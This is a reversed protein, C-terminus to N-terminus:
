NGPALVRLNGSLNLDQIVHTYRDVAPSGSTVTVHNWGHQQAYQVFPDLGSGYSWFSAQNELQIMLGTSGGTDAIRLGYRHLATAIIKSESSAPMAAIQAETPAYWLLAGNPIAVRGDTCVRATQTAPWDWTTATCAIVGFLEHQIAGLQLESLLIFGNPSVAGGATTGGRMWGPTVDASSYASGDVASFAVTGASITQGNAWPPGGSVGWLDLLEGTPQYVAMHHDSGGEPMALAPVHMGIASGQACYTTCHFTVTPDSLKAVYFPRGFSYGYQGVNSHVMLGNVVDGSGAFYAKVMAASNPDITPNPPIVRRYPGGPFFATGVCPPLPQGNVISNACAQAAQAATTPAPTPPLTPIPAPTVIPSPSPMPACDVSLGGPVNSVVVNLCTLVLALVM